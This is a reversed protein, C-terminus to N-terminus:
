ARRAVITRVEEREAPRAAHWVILRVEFLAIDNDFRTMGDPHVRTEALSWSWGGPEQGEVAVFPYSVAYEEAKSRAFELLQVRHLRRAEEFSTSTTVNLSVATVIAMIAFAVLVELLVVGSAHRRRLAKVSQTDSRLIM